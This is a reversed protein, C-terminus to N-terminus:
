AARVKGLFSDVETAHVGVDSEILGQELGEILGELDADRGFAGRIRRTLVDRSKALGLRFRERPTRDPPTASPPVASPVSRARGRVLGILVVVLAVAWAVLWGILAPNDIEPM